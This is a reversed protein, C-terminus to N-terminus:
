KGGLINKFTELDVFPIGNERCHRVESQVGPSIKYNNYVMLNCKDLLPFCFNYLWDKSDWEPILEEFGYTIKHPIIPIIKTELLAEKVGQELEPLYQKAIHKDQYKGAFYVTKRRKLIRKFLSKHIFLKEHQVASDGKSQTTINRTIPKNWIPIFDEPATLESVFVQAGKKTWERVTQWFEKHDFDFKYKETGAYLPDCYIVSDKLDVFDSIVRYDVAYFDIEQLRQSEKQISSYTEEIRTKGKSKRKKDGMYTNFWISGWTLMYGAYAVVYHPYKDPNNKVHKWEEKTLGKQFLPNHPDNKVKRLLDIIYPDKDVAIIKKYKSKDVRQVLNAGGTFADVFTSPSGIKLNEIVNLIQKAILRKSGMYKM